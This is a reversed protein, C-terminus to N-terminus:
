ESDKNNIQKIATELAYYTKTALAEDSIKLTYLEVHEKNFLQILADYAKNSNFYQKKYIIHNIVSLPISAEERPTSISLFGQSLSIDSEKQITYM